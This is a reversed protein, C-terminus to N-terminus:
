YQVGGVGYVTSYNLASCSYGYSHYSNDPATYDTIMCGSSAFSDTQPDFQVTADALYPAGAGDTVSLVTRYNGTPMPFPTGMEVYFSDNEITQYDLPTNPDTNYAATVIRYTFENGYSRGATVQSYNWILEGTADKTLLFGWITFSAGTAPDTLFDTTLTETVPTSSGDIYDYLSFGYTITSLPASSSGSASATVSGDTGYETYSLSLPYPIQHGATEGTISVQEGVSGSNTWSTDGYQWFFAQDFPPSNYQISSYESTSYTGANSYEFAFANALAFGQKTAGAPAGTITIPVTV